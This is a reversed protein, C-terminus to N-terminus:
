MMDSIVKPLSDMHKMAMDAFTDPIGTMTCIAAMLDVIYASVM